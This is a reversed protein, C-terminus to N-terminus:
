KTETAKTKPKRKAPVRKAAPKKAQPTPATKPKETVTREVVVDNIVIIPEEEVVPDLVEEPKTTEPANNSEVAQSTGKSFLFACVIGVTGAILLIPVIM